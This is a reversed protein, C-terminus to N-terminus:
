ENGLAWMQHDIVKRFGMREYGSFGMASSQLYALDCGANFGDAIACWTMAAGIGRRRVDVVTTVNYIGAIGATLFLASIAVPVDGIFGLYLTVGPITAFEATDLPKLLERPIGFGAASVDNYVIVSAGEEVREIRLEDVVPQAVAGGARLIMGPVAGAAVLRHTPAIAQLRLAVNEGLAHVIWPLNRDQFFQTAHELVTALDTVSQDVFVPNFFPIPIGSAVLVAGDIETDEAISSAGALARWAGVFNAQMRAISDPDVASPELM